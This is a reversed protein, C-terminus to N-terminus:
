QSESQVTLSPWSGAALGQRNGAPDLMMARLVFTGPQPLRFTKSEVLHAGPAVRSTSPLGLPYRSDKQLSWWDYVQTGSSDVAKLDFFVGFAGIVEVTHTSVNDLRIAIPIKSGAPVTQSPTSITVRLGSV